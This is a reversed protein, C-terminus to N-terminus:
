AGEERRAALATEFRAREQATVGGAAVTAGPPVRLTWRRALALALVGGLVLAAGPLLWALLGVADRAPVARIGPGFQGQLEDMIRARSWGDRVWGEIRSRLEMAKSSPCDLLTVGACYPSMVQAAIDNAVDEPAAGAPSAVLVIVIAALLGPRM